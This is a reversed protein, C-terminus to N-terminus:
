VVQSGHALVSQTGCASKLDAVPSFLVFQFGVVCQGHGTRHHGATHDITDDRGAPVLIVELKGCGFALPNYQFAPRLSDIRGQVRDQFQEIGTTFLQHGAAGVDTNIRDHVKLYRLISTVYGTNVVDDEGTTGVVKVSQVDIM